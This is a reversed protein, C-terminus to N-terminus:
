YNDNLYIRTKKYKGLYTYIFIGVVLTIYIILFVKSFKFTNLMNLGVNAGLLFYLLKYRNIVVPLINSVVLGIIAYYKDYFLVMTIIFVVNLIGLLVFGIYYKKLIDYYKIILMNMYFIMLLLISGIISYIINIKTPEIFYYFIMGLIIPALISILLYISIKKKM